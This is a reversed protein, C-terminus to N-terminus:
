TCEQAGAPPAQEVQGNPASETVEVQGNQEQERRREEEEDSFQSTENLIAATETLPRIVVVTGTTFLQDLGNLAFAPGGIFIFNDPDGNVPVGNLAINIAGGFGDNGFGFTTGPFQSLHEDVGILLATGDDGPDLNAISQELRIDPRSYPTFRAFIQAPDLDGPRYIDVNDFNLVDTRFILNTGVMELGGVTVSPASFSGQAGITLLSTETNISGTAELSIVQAALQSGNAINLRGNEYDADGTAAVRINNALIPPGFGHGASLIDSDIAVNGGVITIDHATISQANQSDQILIDAESGAFIGIRDAATDVIPPPPCDGDCEMLVQSQPAMRALTSYLVQVGGAGDLTIDDAFIGTEYVSVTGGPNSTTLNVTGAHITSYSIDLAYSADAGATEVTVTGSRLETGNTVTIHGTNAAISLTGDGAVGDSGIANSSALYISGGDTARLEVSRGALGSYRVDIATDESAGGVVSIRSAQATLSGNSASFSSSWGFLSGAGVFAASSAEVANAARVEIDDGAIVVGYLEVNGSTAEVDINNAAAAEFIASSNSFLTHTLQGGLATLGYSFSSSGLAVSAGRVTISNGAIAAGAIFVAGSGEIHVSNAASLETTETSSNTYEYYSELSTGFSGFSTNSRTLIGAIVPPIDRGGSGSTLTVNAGSIHISSGVLASDMISVDGGYVEILNAGDATKSRTDSFTGSSADSPTYVIPSDTASLEGALLSDKVMVSTEGTLTIRAGVLDSGDIELYGKSNDAIGTAHINIHDAGHANGYQDHGGSLIDNRITVNGGAITIDDATISDVLVQSDFQILIDATDGAYIGISDAAYTFGDEDFGSKGALTSNTITVGNRGEIRISPAFFSRNSFDISNASLDIATAAAVDGINLFGNESDIIAEDGAAIAGTVITGYAEVTVDGNVSQLDGTTVGSADTGGVIKIDGDTYVSVNNLEIGFEYGAYGAGRMFTGGAYTGYSGYSGTGSNVIGIGLTLSGGTGYGNRGDIDGDSVDVAQIQQTAVVIVANSDSLQQELFALPITSTYGDGSPFAGVEYGDIVVRDPDILLTGGSLNVEGEIDLRQHGSLEIFGGPGTAEVVSGPNLAAVKEAVIRIEGGSPGNASIRSGATLTIDQTSRVIVTGGKTGAEATSADLTGKNVVNGGDGTLYIGGRKDTTISRAQILGENNVVTATLSRAVRADMYVAGGDAAITGLNEVGASDTVAAANIAYSVLGNGKIDLTVESGSALVVKGLRAAIQGSNQVHDGALVVFGGDATQISGANIVGQDSSGKLEFKGAMFDQPSIDLTTAVLGNVDVQAGQGFLVGNPNILFVRGNAQIHGFIASPNEGIVRNLTASSVSPQNFIVFEHGDISFSQWNIVASDTTQDIRVTNADPMSIAAAGGVVDGGTPNALALGPAVWSVAGWFRPSRIASVIATMKINM